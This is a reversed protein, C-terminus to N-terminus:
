FGCRAAKRIELPETKDKCYKGLHLRVDKKSSFYALYTIADQRAEWFMKKNSAISKMLPIFRQEKSESAENLLDILHPKKDAKYEPSTAGIPFDGAKLKSDIRVYLDGAFASSIVVSVLLVTLATKIM